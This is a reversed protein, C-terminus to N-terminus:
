GLPHQQEVEVVEVLRERARELVVHLAHRGAEGDGGAVVAEGVRLAPRSRQRRRRLIVFRHQPEGLHTHHLDPVRLDRSLIHEIGLWTYDTVIPILTHLRSSGGAYVALSPVSATVVRLLRSGDRWEIDVMLRTLTGELWPFEISGALADPKILAELGAALEVAVGFAGPEVLFATVGDSEILGIEREICRELERFGVWKASTAEANQTM